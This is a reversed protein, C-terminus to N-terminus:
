IEEQEDFPTFEWLHTCPFWAWDSACYRVVPTNPPPNRAACGALALAVLLLAIPRM